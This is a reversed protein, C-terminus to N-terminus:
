GARSGDLAVEVRVGGSPTRAVVARGARDEGRLRLVVPAGDRLNRWWLKREAFMVPIRLLGEDATYGVPLTFSRGSRRGTVTILALRRSVLPHLPSRLLWTVLRNGSRNWVAFPLHGRVPM